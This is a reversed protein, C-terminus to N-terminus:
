TKALHGLTKQPGINQFPINPFGPFDAFIQSTEKITFDGNRLDEFGPDHTYLKQPGVQQFSTSPAIPWCGVPPDFAHSNDCWGALSINQWQCYKSENHSCQVHKRGADWPTNVMVSYNATTGTPFMCCDSFQGTEDCVAYM